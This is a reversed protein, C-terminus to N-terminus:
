SMRRAIASLFMDAIKEPAYNQWIVPQAKTLCDHRLAVDGFMRVKARLEDPSTLVWEQIGCEQATRSYEPTDSVLAPVGWHISATMKNNSKWRARDSQDHILLSLHCSQLDKVFTTLSWPIVRAEPFQIRANEQHAADTIIVLEVTSECGLKQLYPAAMSLNGHNGFWLVRLPEGPNHELAGPRGPGEPSYDIPNPIIEVERCKFDRILQKRHGSTDVIVLSALDAIMEKLAQQTGFLSLTEGVDDADYIVFKGQGRARRTFELAVHDVKKQIVVVDADEAPGAAVEIGKRSLQHILSHVRLRTSGLQETGAPFFTVKV